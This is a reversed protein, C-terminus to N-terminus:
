ADFKINPLSRYDHCEYRTRPPLSLSPNLLLRQSHTIHYRVQKTRTHRADIFSKASANMKLNEAAIRRFSTAGDLVSDGLDSMPIIVPSLLLLMKPLRRKRM